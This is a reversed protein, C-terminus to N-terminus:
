MGDYKRKIRRKGREEDKGRKKEGDKRNRVDEYGKLVATM